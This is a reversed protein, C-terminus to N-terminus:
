LVKQYQRETAAYGRRQYIREVDLTPAIMQIAEAGRDRAWREGEVLLQLGAKGRADPEVWWVLEAAFLQGSLPHAYLVLILMGVLSGDGRDAVLVLADPNAILTAATASRHAPNDSIHASYGSGALFHSGMEAIAAVDNLAARRVM